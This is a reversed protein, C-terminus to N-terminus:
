MPNVLTYEFKLAGLDHKAMQQLTAILVSTATMLATAYHKIFNEYSDLGDHIHFYNPFNQSGHFFGSRYKYMETLRNKHEKIEGLFLPVKKKVQDTINNQGTVYLSEIGVMAWFLREIDSAGDSYQHSFANIARSLSDFSIEDLEGPFARTLYWNWTELIGLSEFVPWKTEQVHELIGASHLSLKTLQKVFTNNVFLLAQGHQLAGVRAIDLAILFDYYRKEFGPVLIYNVHFDNSSMTESAVDPYNQDKFYITASFKLFFEQRGYQKYLHWLRKKEGRLTNVKTVKVTVKTVADLPFNITQATLDAILQQLLDLCEPPDIKLPFLVGQYIDIKIKNM